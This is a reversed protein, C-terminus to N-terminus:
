DHPRQTMKSITQDNNGNCYTLESQLRENEKVLNSLACNVTSLLRDGNSSSSCVNSGTIDGIFFNSFYIWHTCQCLDDQM